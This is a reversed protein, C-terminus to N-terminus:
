SYRYILIFIFSTRFNYKEVKFMYPLVLYTIQCFYIVNTKTQNKNKCSFLSHSTLSIKGPESCLKPCTELKVLRAGM